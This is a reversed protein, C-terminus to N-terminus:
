GRRAQYKSQLKQLTRLYEERSALGKTSEMEQVLSDLVPRIDFGYKNLGQDDARDVILACYYRALTRVRPARRYLYSQGGLTNLFFTAYEYQEELPVTIAGGEKGCNGAALSWRYFDAMTPEIIKSESDLIERVLLVDDRGLVRYFHATNQLIAFLNDRERVVVPPKAALKRLLMAFHRESGGKLRYDTVYERRDLYTFFDSVKAYAQTCSDEAAPAEAGAPAAEGTAAQQGGPQPLGAAPQAVGAAKGSVARESAPGRGFLVYLGVALVAAALVALPLFRNKKPPKTIKPM